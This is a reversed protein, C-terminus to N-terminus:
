SGLVRELQGFVKEFARVYGAMVTEDNPPTLGMIPIITNITTGSGAVRPTPEWLADPARRCPRSLSAHITQAYKM